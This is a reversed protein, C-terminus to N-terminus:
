DVKFRLITSPALTDFHENITKELLEDYEKSPYDIDYGRYVEKGWHFIEMDETENVSSHSINWVHIKPIEAGYPGEEERCLGNEWDDYDPSGYEFEDSEFIRLSYKFGKEKDIVDIGYITCQNSDEVEPLMKFIPRYEEM